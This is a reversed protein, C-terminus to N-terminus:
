NPGIKCGLYILYGAGVYKVLSYAQASAALLAALGTTAICANCFNGLAVGYVSLLGARRGQVLSCTIIFLVGPGPTIALVLSAAIFASLLPWSPLLESM